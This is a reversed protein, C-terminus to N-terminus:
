KRMRRRVVVVLIILLATAEFYIMSPYFHVSQTYQFDDAFVSISPENFVHKLTAEGKVFNLEAPIGDIIFSFIGSGENLRPHNINKFRIHIDTPKGKSVFSPTEVLIDDKGIRKSSFKM